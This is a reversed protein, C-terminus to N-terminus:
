FLRQVRQRSLRIQLFSANQHTLKCDRCSLSGVSGTPPQVFYIPAVFHLDLDNMARRSLVVLGLNRTEYGEDLPAEVNFGDNHWALSTLELNDSVAFPYGLAAPVPERSPKAGTIGVQIAHDLLELLATCSV